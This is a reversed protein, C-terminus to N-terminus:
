QHGPEVQAPDPAATRSPNLRNESDILFVGVTVVRDGQKLGSLVQYYEGALAGLQVARMDFVGPASEVYVIRHRGAEIVASRPVALVQQGPAPSPDHSPHIDAARPITEVAGGCTLMKSGYFPNAIKGTYQLWNAKEMPCRYVQVAPAGAPLGVRKGIEIMAISVQQFTTKRIQELSQATSARAAEGVRAVQGAIDARGNLPKLREALTNLLVPMGDAKDQSLTSEIEMYPVLAAAYVESEQRSTLPTALPSTAHTAPRTAAADDGVTIALAADAFMGPRLRLDANTVEVRADLTRTQPDLQYSMFTVAGNFVKDPMADVTVAVPQGLRVLPVDREFLKVQLWLTKLDAITFPTDGANVYGGEFLDKRVVVGSIPSTITLHTPVTGAADFERDIADLQERTIGWLVLKEMTANYVTAADARAAAPADGALENVRKRALLYERQAAYLEPSYISYVRDGKAVIQGTFRIFLEDARGAVRASLQAVRSEAYDLVGLAHVERVLHRLEVPSTQINALSIRQPSLQVRALVDDPLKANEGKRRKVLPMGCIPCDGAQARVINPHMVCFFEVDSASALEDPAVSPRTWKDWHNKIDDWYGVLLGAVLFVSLFRLRALLVRVVAWVQHSRKENM